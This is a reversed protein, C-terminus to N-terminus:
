IELFIQAQHHIKSQVFIRKYRWIICNASNYVVITDSDADFVESRMNSNSNSISYSSCTQHQKQQLKYQLIRKYGIRITMIISVIAFVIHAIKMPWGFPPFYGINERKAKWGMMIQTAYSNLFALMPKHLLVLHQSHVDFAETFVCLRAALPLIYFNSYSTVINWKRLKVSQPKQIQFQGDLLM